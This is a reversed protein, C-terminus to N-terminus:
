TRYHCEVSDNTKDEDGQTMAWDLTALTLELSGEAEIKWEMEVTPALCIRTLFPYELESKDNSEWEGNGPREWIVEKEYSYSFGPLPFPVSIGKGFGISKWDYDPGSVVQRNETISAEFRKRVNALNYPNDILMVATGALDVKTSSREPPEYIKIIKITATVTFDIGGNPPINDPLDNKESGSSGDGSGPSGGSSGGGDPPVSIDIPDPPPGGSSEDESGDYCDDYNEICVVVIVECVYGDFEADYECTLNENANSAKGSAQSRGYREAVWAGVRETMGGRISRSIPLRAELYFQVIGETDRVVYRYKTTVKDVADEVLSEPLRLGRVDYHYSKKGKSRTRYSIFAIYPYSVAESFAELDLNMPKFMKGGEPVMRRNRGKLLPPGKRLMRRQEQRKQFIRLVALEKEKVRENNKLRELVNQIFWKEAEEGSYHRSRTFGSNMSGIKNTGEMGNQINEEGENGTVGTIMDRACGAGFALLGILVVLWLPKWGRIKESNQM